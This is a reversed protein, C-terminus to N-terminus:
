LFIEPYDELTSPTIEKHELVVDCWKLLEPLYGVSDGFLFKRCKLLEQQTFEETIGLIRLDNNVRIVRYFGWFSMVLVDHM